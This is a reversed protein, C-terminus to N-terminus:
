TREKICDVCQSPRVCGHPCGEGTKALQLQRELEAIRQDVESVIETAAIKAYEYAEEYRWSKRGASLQIVSNARQDDISYGQEKLIAQAIRDLRENTKVNEM